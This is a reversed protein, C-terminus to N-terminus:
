MMWHGTWYYQCSHYTMALAQQMEVFPDGKVTASQAELYRAKNRINASTAPVLKNAKIVNCVLINEEDEDCLHSKVECLNLCRMCGMSAGDGRNHWVAKHAGGDQLIGGLTAWLRISCSPFHLLVGATKFNHGMQDFFVKILKGFM